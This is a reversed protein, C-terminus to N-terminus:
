LAEDSSEVRLREPNEYEVEEDQIMEMTEEVSLRDGWFSGYYAFRVTGSPDLIVTAPRGKSM